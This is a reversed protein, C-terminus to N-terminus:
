YITVHLGWEPIKRRLNLYLILYFLIKKRFFKIILAHFPHTKRIDLSHRRRRQRKEMGAYAESSTQCPLRLAPVASVAPSLRIRSHRLATEPQNGYHRCRVSRRRLCLRRSRRIGSRQGIGSRLTRCQRYHFLGPRKFVIRKRHLKGRPCTGYRPHMRCCSDPATVALTKMVPSDLWDHFQGYCFFYAAQLLFASWLAAGLWDIGYLPFKPVARTHRTCCVLFLLDIVMMGAVIYNMSSWDVYLGSLM